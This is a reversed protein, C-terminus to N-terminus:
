RGSAWGNCSARRAHLRRARPPAAAGARRARGALPDDDDRRRGAPRCRQDRRGTRVRADDDHRALGRQAPRAAHEEARRRGRPVARRVRHRRQDPPDTPPDSRPRGHLHAPGLHRRAETGGPRHPRAAHLADGVARDVDVGEPRQRRLRRRHRRGASAARGPRQRCGARQLGPVLVRRRQRHGAPPAEAGATGFTNIAPGVNSTGFVAVRRPAQVRAFEADCALTDVVGLGRGGIEVPWQPAGWGAAGLQRQFDALAEWEKSDGWRQRHRAMIEELVPRLEAAHSNETTALAQVVESGQSRTSTSSTAPTSSCGRPTSTRARRAGPTVHRPDPRREPRPPAAM